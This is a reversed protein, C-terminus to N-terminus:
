QNSVLTEVGEEKPLITRLEQHPTHLTLDGINFTNSINYEKPLQIEYANNRFKRLIPFPGIARPMLKNKRLQPFREKRV